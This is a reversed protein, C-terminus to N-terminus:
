GTLYFCSIEEPFCGGKEYQRNGALALEMSYLKM